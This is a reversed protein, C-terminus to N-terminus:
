NNEVYEVATVIDGAGSGITVGTWVLYYWVGPDSSQGADQWVQQEINAIDRIENLVDLGDVRASSMDVADAYANVDVVNGDEDYLGLDYDTGSTIADNLLWIHCLSWSSHIPCVYLVDGDDDAAAVTSVQRISKIRGGVTLAHNPQNRVANEFNTIANSKDAVAM